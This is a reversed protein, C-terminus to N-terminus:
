TDFQLEKLVKREYNSLNDNPPISIQLVLSVKVCIMDAEKKRSGKSCRQYYSHYREERFIRSMIM